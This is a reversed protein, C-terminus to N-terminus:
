YIITFQNYGVIVPPLITNGSITASKYSPVTGTFLSQVSAIINNPNILNQSLNYFVWGCNDNSFAKGSLPPLWGINGVTIVLVGQSRGAVLITAYHATVNTIEATGGGLEVRLFADAMGQVCESHIYSINFRKATTMGLQDIFVGNRCTTGEVIIGNIVLGDTAYSRIGYYSANNGYYRYQYVASGNCATNNATGWSTRYFDYTIGNVAATADCNIITSQLAFTMAYASTGGFVRCHSIYAQYSAGFDFVKTTTNNCNVILGTFYARMNAMLEAEALSAPQERGFLSAPSGVVNITDNFGQVWINYADKRIPTLRNVYLTKTIFVPMGTRMAKSLAAADIQDSTTFGLGAYNADIYAQNFGAQAFTRNANVAGYNEPYAIYQTTAGGTGDAGRPIGFNIIANTATGSNTVTAQSGAPLTTTTGISITAAQGPLGQAGTDGKDGKDGKLDALAILFTWQTDTTYKWEIATATARFEPIYSVGGSGGIPISFRYSWTTGTQNNTYFDLKKGVTDQVISMHGDKWTRSNPSYTPKAPDIVTRYRYTQSYSLHATILLAFLITKKLM